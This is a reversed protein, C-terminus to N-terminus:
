WWHLEEALARFERAVALSISDPGYSAGGGAGGVAFGGAGTVYANGGAGGAGGQAGPGYAAGGGGGGGAFAVSGGAGGYSATQPVVAELAAARALLAREVPVVSADLHTKRQTRRQPQASM